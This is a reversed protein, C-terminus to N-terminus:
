HNENQDGKYLKKMVKEDVYDNSSDLLDDVSIEIIGTHLDLFTSIMLRIANYDTLVLDLTAQLPENEIIDLLDSEMDGLGGYYEAVDEDEEVTKYLRYVLNIIEIMIKKFLDYDYFHQIKLFDIVSDYYIAQDIFEPETEELEFDDEDEPHEDYYKIIADAIEQYPEIIGDIDSPSFLDDWEFMAFPSIKVLYGMTCEAFRLAKEYDDLIAFHISNEVMKHLQLKGEKIMAIVDDISNLDQIFDWCEIQSLDMDGFLVPHTLIYVINCYTDSFLLAVLLRYLSYNEKETQEIFEATQKYSDKVNDVEIIEPNMKKNQEQYNKVKDYLFVRLQDNLNLTKYKM